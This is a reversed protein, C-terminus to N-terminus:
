AAKDSKEKVQAKPQKTGSKEEESLREKADSIWEFFNAANEHLVQKEKKADPM